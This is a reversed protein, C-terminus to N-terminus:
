YDNYDEKSTLVTEPAPQSRNLLAVYLRKSSRHWGLEIAVYAAVFVGGLAVHVVSLETPASSTPVTSLLGSITNFLVGYVGIPVVVVLPLSALKGRASLKSQGLVDRAAHLTTLVVVLALFLGADLKAGKGTIAVFLAGGGLATALSVVVGGLGLEDRSKETPATQTVTAGSSLFLYAKYFGHLILHTIAAAFFGLGCQLIMFGMQAVTSAGLKRKVDTQVLLLAQGLLASAAGVVVLLHMVTADAAVLPAFRTLLIGGANVFGAHMLASAPTPATMSSLLWGQFPFLASQVVAALVIGAVALGFVTPSLTGAGALIGTISTTGTAWALLALSGALLGSSALFYRRALAAAARAQKWDRDHGILSAMALGMGLWSAAFLVVHDAATVTMVVLTFGFITAFFRDLHRDGAMYRRSYSHVIGSVFTVIAWSVVTLGDVAVYGPLRWEAGGFGVIALLTLSLLFLAWVARTAWRPVPTSTPPTEPLQVRDTRQTQGAM